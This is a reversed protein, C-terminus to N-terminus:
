WNKNAADLYSNAASAEVGAGLLCVVGLARKLFDLFPNGIPPAKLVVYGAAGLGAARATSKLAQSIEEEM